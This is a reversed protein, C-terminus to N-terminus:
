ADKAEESLNEIEIQLAQKALDLARTLEPTMRVIPIEGLVAAYLVMLARRHQQLRSILQRLESTTTLHPWGQQPDYQM